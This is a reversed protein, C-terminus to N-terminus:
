RIAFFSWTVDKKPRSFYRWLRGGAILVTVRHPFPTSLMRFPTSLMLRGEPLFRYTLLHRHTSLLLRPFDDEMQSMDVRQRKRCHDHNTKTMLRTKKLMPEDNVEPYSDLNRKKSFNCIQKFDGQRLVM